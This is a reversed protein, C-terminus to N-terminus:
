KGAAAARQNLRREVARSIKLQILLMIGACAAVFILGAKLSGAGAVAGVVATISIGGLVGASIIVAFITGTYRLFVRGASGLANPFIPGFCLGSFWLAFAALWLTDAFAFVTLGAFCGVACRFVLKRGPIEHFLAIALVRGIMLAAWYGALLWQDLPPRIGWREVVASRSWIGM